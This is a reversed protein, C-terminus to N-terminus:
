YIIKENVQYFNILFHVDNIVSITCISYKRGIQKIQEGLNRARLINFSDLLIERINYFIIILILFVLFIM